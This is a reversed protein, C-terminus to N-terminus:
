RTLSSHASQVLVRASRRVEDSIEDNTADGAGALALLMAGDLLHAMVSATDPEVGATRVLSDALARETDQVIALAAARHSSGPDGFAIERLYVRGNDFQVRNCEIIARLISMVAEVPDEERDAAARGRSLAARYHANQVLLLVDNKTKAYLFLTGAAIDAAEAIQSTTVEDIGREALLTGAAALIRELKAQKNRERRGPEREEHAM